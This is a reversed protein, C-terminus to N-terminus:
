LGLGKKLFPLPTLAAQHQAFQYYQTDLKNLLSEDRRFDSFPIKKSALTVSWWGPPYIPQTFPITLRQDFGVNKLAQHIDRLIHQQLLPSESQLALIGDQSLVRHCDRYFAENFLGVAPGVPDTSDILIIDVSNSQAERMWQIGDTFLLTARPDQNATCLEPFYKESLRTVREEIEVQIASQVPHKLVEKLTGCDGGGIIVVRKPDPHTFLAPHSIMEHYVFNDLTTVMAVGDIVMLKGFDTTDYIDITMIPTTESHLHATTKLCFGVGFGGSMHETYWENAAM